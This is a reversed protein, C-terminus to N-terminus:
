ASKLGKICNKISKRGAIYNSNSMGAVLPYFLLNWVNLRFKLLQLIKVNSINKQKLQAKISLYHLPISKRMLKRDSLFADFFIRGTKEYSFSTCLFSSRKVLLFNFRVFEADFNISNVRFRKLISAFHKKFWCALDRSALCQKKLCFFLFSIPFEFSESFFLKM